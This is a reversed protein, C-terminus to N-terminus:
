RRAELSTCSAISFDSASLFFFVLFPNEVKESEPGVHGVVWALNIMEWLARSVCLAFNQNWLAKFDLSSSIPPFYFPLRGALETGISNRNREVFKRSGGVSWPRELCEMWLILQMQHSLYHLSGVSGQHFCCPHLILLAAKKAGVYLIMPEEALSM